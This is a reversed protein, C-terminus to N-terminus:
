VAANEEERVADLIKQYSRVTDLEYLVGLLQRNEIVPISEGAFDELAAMATWISADPHLTLREPTAHSKALEDLPTGASILAMLSHLSLTGVYTGDADRIYAESRKDRVLADRIIALTDVTKGATYRQSILPRITHQQVTVKDRGLRLDFGRTQLQKDFFSRGFVRYAILNACAVSVLAATALDFNQTLEFVILVATLPAGIVPSTVAVMGCVAYVAIDSHHDGVLWEAGNGILAGFLTGILLAPSFVGGAFGFGLCLATLLLKGIMLQALEVASLADGTMALRLAEQGIGLVDPIQLAVVGLALGACATKVPMPWRLRAAMDGAFEIARMYFVAVFAGAVGIAIFVLYEYPSPVILDEVRFLPARKFIIHAVVYGLTAAIAIPAFARVSNHRLIVERAFVLGAIPAHFAAAIAAAAGCGIGIRGLSDDTDTLRSIWSGVSSGMHALPGYQGVSAGSGLSLCSAIASLVGDKVPMTADVSQATAIADAPGHFRGDSMFRSLFGVLLGGFAPVGITLAIQLSRESDPQRFGPSMLLFDNLWLVAEVFGVALVGVVSGIILGLSTLVTIRKIM